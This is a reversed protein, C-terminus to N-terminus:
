GGLQREHSWLTLSAIQAHSRMRRLTDLYSQEVEPSNLLRMFEGPPDAKHGQGSLLDAYRKVAYKRIRPLMEKLYGVSDGYWTALGIGSSCRTVTENIGLGCSGHREEGRAKEVWQNVLMDYPTTLMAMPDIALEALPFDVSVDRCWRRV